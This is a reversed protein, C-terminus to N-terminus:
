GPCLAACHPTACGGLQCHTGAPCGATGTGTCVQQEACPAQDNTLCHLAGETNLVSCFCGTRCNGGTCIIACSGNGLCRQGPPCNCAVAQGCNNNKASGCFAGACTAAPHDPICCRGGQCTGGPCATGDPKKGQCKGQKRKKCPPCKKSKRAAVPDPHVVGLLGIAGALAATVTRRRSGTSSLARTLTDFRNSDM